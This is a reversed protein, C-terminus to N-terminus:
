PSVAQLGLDATFTGAPQDQPQSPSATGRGPEPPNQRDRSSRPQYVHGGVERPTERHTWAWTDGKWLSWSYQSRPWLLSRVCVQDARYLGQRWFTVDWPVPTQAQHTFKLPCWEAQFLAKSRVTSLVRGTNAGATHGEGKRKLLPSDRCLRTDAAVETGTHHGGRGSRATLLLCTLVRCEAARRGM